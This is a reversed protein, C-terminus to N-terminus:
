GITEISNKGLNFSQGETDTERKWMVMSYEQLGFKTHKIPSAGSIYGHDRDPLYKKDPRSYRWLIGDENHINTQELAIQIQSDITDREWKGKFKFIIWSKCDSKTFYLETVM